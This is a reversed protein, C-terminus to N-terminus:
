SLSTERVLVLPSTVPVSSWFPNLNTFEGQLTWNPLLRARLEVSSPSPATTKGVVIVAGVTPNFLGEGLFLPVSPGGADLTLYGIVNVYPGFQRLYAKGLEADQHHWTGTLDIGFLGSTYNPVWANGFQAALLQLQPVWQGGGGFLDPVPARFPPMTLFSQRAIIEPTPEFLSPTFDPQSALAKFKQIFDAVASGTRFSEGVVSAIQLIAELV